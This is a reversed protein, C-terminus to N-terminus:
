PGTIPAAPAGRDGDGETGTGAVTTIVGDPAVRRVRQNYNDAVYLSGDPGLAVAGPFGL